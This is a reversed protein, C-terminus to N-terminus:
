FGVLGRSFEDISTKGPCDLVEFKIKGGSFEQKKKMAEYCIRVSQFHGEGIKVFSSDKSSVGIAANQARIYRSNFKSKEGVSVGKDTCNSVRITEIQYSGGSVDLCDNNANNIKMDQVKLTSFDMDVADSASNIVEIKKVDGTSNIINISDECSADSARIISGNFKVDFFTLCGTLGFVNFRQGKLETSSKGGLFQVEWDSLDNNTFLVWDDATGQFIRILKATYDFSLQIGPSKIIDGGLFAVVNDRSHRKIFAHDALIVREGDLEMDSIVSAMGERTIQESSNDEWSIRYSDGLPDAKLIHKQPTSNLKTRSIYKSYNASGLEEYNVFKTSQDVLQQLYKASDVFRNWNKAVFSESDSPTLNSRAAFDELVAEYFLPDNLQNFFPFRYNKVFWRNIAEPMASENKVHEFRAMGDYYIPEFDDLFVNFYFRRNEPSLGHDANLALSLFHFDHFINSHRINPQIPYNYQSLNDANTLYALQLRKFANITINASVEGKLFWKKNSTRALAISDNEM